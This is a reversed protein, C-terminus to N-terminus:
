NGRYAAPKIQVLVPVPPVSNWDTSYSVETTTATEAQSWYTNLSPQRRVPGSAPVIMVLLLAFVLVLTALIVHRGASELIEPAARRSPIEENLRRLVRASFGWSPDPAEERGLSRFGARATALHGAYFRCAACSEMHQKASDPLGEAGADWAMERAQECRM